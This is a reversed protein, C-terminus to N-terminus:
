APAQVQLYSSGSLVNTLRPEKALEIDRADITEHTERVRGM